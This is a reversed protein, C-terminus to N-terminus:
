EGWAKEAAYVMIIATAVIEILGWVKLPSPNAIVSITLLVQWFFLVSALVVIFWNHKM